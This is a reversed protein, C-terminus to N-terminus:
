FLNPKLLQFRQCIKVKKKQKPDSIQIVMKPLAEVKQKTKPLTGLLETAEFGQMMDKFHLITDSLLYATYLNQQFKNATVRDHLVQLQYTLYEPYRYNEYEQAM